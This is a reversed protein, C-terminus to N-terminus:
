SGDSEEESMEALKKRCTQAAWRFAAERGAAHQTDAGPFRRAKDAKTEFLEALDRCAARYGAAHAAYIRGQVELQEKTLGEGTAFFTPDGM